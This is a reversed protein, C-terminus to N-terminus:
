LSIKNYYKQDHSSFYLIYINFIITCCFISIWILFWTFIDIFSNNFPFFTLQALYSHSKRPSFFLESLFIESAFIEKYYEIDLFSERQLSKFFFAVHKKSLFLHKVLYFFYVFIWIKSCISSYFFGSLLESFCSLVAVCCEM